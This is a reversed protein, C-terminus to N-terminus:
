IQTDPVCVAAAFRIAAKPDKERAKKWEAIAQDNAAKHTKQFADQALECLELSNFKELKVGMNPVSSHLVFKQTPQVTAILPIAILIIGIKRLAAEM